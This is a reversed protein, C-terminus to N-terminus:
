KIFLPELCIESQNTIIIYLVGNILLIVYKSRFEKPKTFLHRLNRTSQKIPYNQLVLGHGLMGTRHSLADRITVQQTFYGDDLVFDEPM